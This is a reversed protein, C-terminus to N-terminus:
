SNFLNGGDGGTQYCYVEVIDPTFKCGNQEPTMFLVINGLADEVDGQAFCNAPDGLQIEFACDAISNSLEYHELILEPKVYKKM